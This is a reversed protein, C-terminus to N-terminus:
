RALIALLDRRILRWHQNLNITYVRLRCGPLGCTWDLSHLGLPYLLLGDLATDASIPLNKVYAFMQYLHDSRLTPSGHPHRQLPQPTYKADIVIWRGPRKLTVDTQMTPLWEATPGAAGAWPFRSRRVSFDTQEHKYFNFLFREFLRRMREEDRAFDRFRFAGTAEDPILEDFLLRCVDLLFRYFRVNRHLQVARFTRESLPVDSFGHMRQCATRIPERLKADLNDTRLLLRLTAKLIQNHPVDYSLEDFCCVTRARTFANAKVTLSLDLKGRVGLIDDTRPLYGRDPCRRLLLDVGRNLVAALLNLLDTDPEAYIARMRAEDFADWAYLLLYYLNRVSIM